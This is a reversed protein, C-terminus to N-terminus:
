LRAFNVDCAFYSALNQQTLEPDSGLPIAFEIQKNNFRLRVANKDWRGEYFNEKRQWRFAQGGDITEAFSTASFTPADEWVQWAGFPKPM